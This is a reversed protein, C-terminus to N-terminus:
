RRERIAGFAALSGEVGYGADGTEPRAAFSSGQTWKGSVSIGDASLTGEYNGRIAAVSLKVDSGTLTVSDSPITAGWDGQDISGLSAKWAGRDGKEVHVILRFEQPGAKLTGGAIDQAFATHGFTVFSAAIWCIRTRM